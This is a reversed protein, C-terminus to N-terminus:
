RLAAIAMECDKEDLYVVIGYGNKIDAIGFSYNSTINAKSLRDFVDACAGSEDDGEIHLAAHPGDLVLGNTRAVDLLKENEIPYLTFKIQNSDVAVANFALYNVGADSFISLLRAESGKRNDIITTYYTIKKAKFGM